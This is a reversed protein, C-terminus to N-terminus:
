PSALTWCSTWALFSFLTWCQQSNTFSVWMHHIVKVCHHPFLKRPTMITQKHHLLLDNSFYFFIACTNCFGAIFPYSILWPFDFSFWTIIAVHKCSQAASSFIIQGDAFLIPNYPCEWAIKRCHQTLYRTIMQTYMECKARYVVSVYVALFICALKNVPKILHRVTSQILKDIKPVRRSNSDSYHQTHIGLELFIVSPSLWMFHRIAELRLYYLHFLVYPLESLFYSLTIELWNPVWVLLCADKILYSYYEAHFSLVLFTVSPSLWTYYRIDVLRWYSLHVLM